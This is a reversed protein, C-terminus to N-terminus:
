NGSDQEYPTRYQISRGLTLEDTYELESGVSMGRALTTVQINYNKLKKFLYFSTTEGEMNASLALLVEQITGHEVRKLLKEVNLDAPSVGDMPSILGGLVHYKGRFHRTNEIALVDRIDEVVCVLTGDRSPNSCVSCVEIESLNGCETCTHIEKKLRIFANGFQEVEDENRRLLQLVLRLATKRGVGPLSAMQEIADQLLRPYDQQNM